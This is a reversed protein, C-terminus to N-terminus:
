RAVSPVAWEAGAVTDIVIVRAGLQSSTERVVATPSGTETGSEHVSSSSSSSDSDITSAGVFPESPAIEPSETVYVGASPSNPSSVNM